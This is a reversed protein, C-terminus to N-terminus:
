CPEAIKFLDEILDFIDRGRKLHVSGAELVTVKNHSMMIQPVCNSLEPCIESDKAMRIPEMNLVSVSRKTEPYRYKTSDADIRNVQRIAKCIRKSEEETPFLSPQKNDLYCGWLLLLDHTNDLTKNMKGVAITIRAVNDCDRYILGKILLEVTHRALFMYPNFLYPAEIISIWLSAAAIHYQFALDFYRKYKKKVTAQNITEINNM